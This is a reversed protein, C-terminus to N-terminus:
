VSVGRGSDKKKGRTHHDSAARTHFSVEGGKERKEQEKRESRRFESATVGGAGIGRSNYKERASEEGRKKLM